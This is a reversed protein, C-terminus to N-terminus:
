RPEFSTTTDRSVPLDGEQRRVEEGATRWLSVLLSLAIVLAPLGIVAMRVERVSLVSLVYGLYPVHYVYRAQQPQSFTFRWPDAAENFDGKTSFVRVGDRRTSIRSIRHTVPDSKGPPVFTIINGVKLQEVPTLRAYIVSGQEITGSMSRGTIVYRELGLIAPVVMIAVVLAIAAVCLLTAITTLLRSM